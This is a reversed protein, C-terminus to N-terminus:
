GGRFLYWKLWAGAELGFIACRPCAKCSPESVILVGAGIERCTSLNLTHNLVFKVASSRVQNRSNTPAKALGPARLRFRTTPCRAPPGPRGGHRRRNGAAHGLQAEAATGAHVTHAGLCHVHWERFADRVADTGSPPSTTRRISSSCLTCISRWHRVYRTCTRRVPVIM